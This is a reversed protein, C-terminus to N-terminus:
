KKSGKSEKNDRIIKFITDKFSMWAFESLRNGLEQKLFIDFINELQKELNEM